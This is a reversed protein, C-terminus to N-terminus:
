LLLLLLSNNLSFCLTFPNNSEYLSLLLLLVASYLVVNCATVYWEEYVKTLLQKGQLQLALSWLSEGKRTERDWIFADADEFSVVNSRVQKILWLMCMYFLSDYIRQKHQLQMQEM